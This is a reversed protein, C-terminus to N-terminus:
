APGRSWRSVTDAIGIVNFRWAAGAACLVLLALKLVIAAPGAGAFVDIARLALGTALACATITAIDFVPVPMRMAGRSGLIFVLCALGQGAALAIAAGEAGRSPILALSLGGTTVLLVGSAIADLSSSGTFYIVQGFYYSRFLMFVSAAVLIPALAKAAERYGPGLLVSVLVDDFSLIAVAGFAGVLAIARAADRLVPKASAVGGERAERKAISIMSLAISEGFVVFSQRLFDGIAGYAGLEDAGVWKGIILRDITQALAAIGFSLVLPWGYAILKKAEILSGHGERVLPWVFRGAPIAALANALAVALVLDIPDNTLRLAICGLALVLVGRTVVSLAVAEVALRTRAVELTGEFVMMGACAAVVAAAFAPEAFGFATALTACIAALVLSGLLLRALTGIQGPARADDYLAFFAFKPSQCTAGYLVLAWSLVFLYSGYVEVPALRTFSALAAMNLAAAVARSGLYTITHRAIM